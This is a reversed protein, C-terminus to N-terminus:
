TNKIDSEHIALSILFVGNVNYKQEVEYFAAYNQEFIKNKDNVNGTLIKKYDDLSLGSKKNLPMDISVDRLIRQARAREIMEPAVAASTLYENKVFGSKGDYSVKSWDGALELLTVDVIEPIETVTKSNENPSEKLETAKTVYMVDGLHVKYKALFESTGINVIQPVPEKVLKEEIINEEVLENNDYTRVAVTRNTGSVGEQVVQEEGKPLTDITQYKIPFKIEREENLTEKFSSTDVNASAIQVIDIVNQNEEFEVPEVQAVEQTEELGYTTFSYSLYLLVLSVILTVAIICVSLKTYSFTKTSNIAQKKRKERRGYAYPNFNKRTNSFYTTIGSTINGKSKQTEKHQYNYGDEARKQQLEKFVNVLNRDLNSNNNENM